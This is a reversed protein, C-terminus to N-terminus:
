SSSMDALSMSRLSVISVTPNDKKGQQFFEVYSNGVHEGYISFSKGSHRWNSTMELSVETSCGMAQLLPNISASIEPTPLYKKWKPSTTHLIIDAGIKEGYDSPVNMELEHIAISPGTPIIFTSDSKESSESDRKSTDESTETATHSKATRSYQTRVSSVKSTQSNHHASAADDIESMNVDIDGLASTHEVAPYSGRAESAEQQKCSVTAVASPELHFCQLLKAVSLPIEKWISAIQPDKLTLATKVKLRELKLSTQSASISSNKLILNNLVQIMSQVCLPHQLLTKPTYFAGTHLQLEYGPKAVLHPNTQHPVHQSPEISNLPLEVRQADPAKLRPVKRLPREDTRQTTSPLETSDPSRGRKQKSPIADGVKIGSLDFTDATTVPMEPNFSAHHSTSTSPLAGTNSSAAAESAKLHRDYNTWHFLRGTHTEGNKQFQRASCGLPLCTCCIHNPDFFAM